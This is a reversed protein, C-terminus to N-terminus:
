QVDSDPPPLRVERDEEVSGVGEIEALARVGGDAVTAVIVGVAELVKDVQVGAAELRAVVDAVPTGGSATVLVKM